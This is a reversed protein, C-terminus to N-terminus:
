SSRARSCRPRGDRRRRPPPSRRALMRFPALPRQEDHMFRAARLHRALLQEAEIAPLTAFHHTGSSTTKTSASGCVAVPLSRFVSSRRRSRRNGAAPRRLRARGPAAVEDRSIPSRARQASLGAATGIVAPDISGDRETVRRSRRGRRRDGAPRPRPATTSRARASRGRAPDRGRREGPGQAARRDRDPVIGQRRSRAAPRRTTARRPSACRATGTSRSSPRCRARASARAHRAADARHRDQLAGAVIESASASAGNILVVM